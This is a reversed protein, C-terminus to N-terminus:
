KFKRMSISAQESAPQLPQLLWCLYRACDYGHGDYRAKDIVRTGEKFCTNQFDKILYKCKPDVILRREGAANKVFANLSDISAAHGPNASPFRIYRLGEIFRKDNEITQYDTIAASTHRSASTADGVFYFKKKHNSHRNWLEDLADTTKANATIHIEDYIRLVNEKLQALIWCMPAVNFDCSVYIPLEPDYSVETINDPGFDPSCAFEPPGFIGLYRQDFLYQPLEKRAREFEEKPFYPNSTSPMNFYDYNPDGSKALNVVEQLWNNGYPTSFGALRGQKFGVRQQATIWSDRSGAACEDYYCADAVIGQYAQPESTSVFWIVGGDPLMYQNKTTNYVGELNTGAYHNLLNPVTAATLIRFTPALVLFTGGPHKSIEQALWLPAMWSKGSGTGASVIVYRKTSRMIRAQAPHLRIEKSM